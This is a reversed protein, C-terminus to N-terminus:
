AKANAGAGGPSKKTDRSGNVLTHQLPLELGHDGRQELLRRLTALTTESQEGLMCRYQSGNELWRDLLAKGGKLAISEQWSTSQLSWGNTKLAESHPKLSQLWQQEQEVLSELEVLGPTLRLLVGAPGAQAHSILLRLGAHRDSHRDLLSSLEEWNFSM